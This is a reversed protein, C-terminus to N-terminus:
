VRSVTWSNIMGWVIFFIFFHLISFNSGNGLQRKRFFCKVTGCVNDKTIINPMNNWETAILLEIVREICIRIYRTISVALHDLKYPFFFHRENEYLEFRELWADFVCRRQDESIINGHCLADELWPLVHIPFFFM